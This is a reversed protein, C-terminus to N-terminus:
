QTTKSDFNRQLSSLEINQFESNKNRYKTFYHFILMRGFKPYLCNRSTPLTLTHCNADSNNNKHINTSESSTTEWPTEVPSPRAATPASTARTIWMDVCDYIYVWLCLQPDPHLRTPGPDSGPIFVPLKFRSTWVPNPVSRDLISIRSRGKQSWPDEYSFFLSNGRAIWRCIINM